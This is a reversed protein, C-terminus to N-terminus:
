TVVTCPTAFSIINIEQAFMYCVKAYPVSFLLDLWCVESYKLKSECILFLYDCKM